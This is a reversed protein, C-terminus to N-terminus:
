DEDTNDYERVSTESTRYFVSEYDLPKTDEATIWPVDKHSLETIQNATLDSLRDLEWDIHKQEQGNLISLDPEIKPDILYKVQPYHYFKSEIIEVKGRKVLEEIVKTFLLPTPGYHNKLYVLGMLQEEFKEYYDFDIFYFLKYLVTMGINPKGGVKKLIYLLVQKFKDVKEQPISIRIEGQKKAAAKEKATIKMIIKAEEKQQLFDELSISFFDALKKAETITLDREGAEVQMYTPRSIGLKSALFGQTLHHKKRLQQVFKALM